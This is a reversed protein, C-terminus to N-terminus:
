LSHLSIGLGLRLWILVGAGILLVVLHSLGSPLLQEVVFYDLAILAAILVSPLVLAAFRLRRSYGTEGHGNVDRNDFRIHSLLPDSRETRSRAGAHSRGRSPPSGYAAAVRLPAAKLFQYPRHNHIWAKAPVVASNAAIRM